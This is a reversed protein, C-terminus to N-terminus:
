TASIKLHIVETRRFLSVINYLILALIYMAFRYAQYYAVKVPSMGGDMYLSMAAQM